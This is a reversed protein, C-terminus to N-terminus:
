KISIFFLLVNLSTHCLSNFKNYKSIIRNKHLFSSLSHVFVTSDFGDVVFDDADFPDLDFASLNFADFAHNLKFFIFTVYFM